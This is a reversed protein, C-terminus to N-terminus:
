ASPLEWAKTTPNWVPAPPPSSPATPLVWSNSAANWVPAPAPSSPTTDGAGQPMAVAAVSSHPFLGQLFGLVSALVPSQAELAAIRDAFSTAATTAADEAIALPAKHEAVDVAVTGAVGVAAGEAEQTLSESM